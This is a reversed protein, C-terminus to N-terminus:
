CLYQQYSSGMENRTHGYIYAIDLWVFNLYLEAEFENSVEDSPYANLIIDGYDRDSPDSSSGSECATLTLTAIALLSIFKYFKM